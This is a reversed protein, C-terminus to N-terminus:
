VNASGIYEGFAKCWITVSAIDVPGVNAPIEYWSAGNGKKLKGLDIQNELNFDSEDQINYDITSIYVHGDPLPGSNFDEGLQIYAIGERVDIRIEVTGEAWHFADEGKPDEFFTNRKYMYGGILEDEVTVRSVADDIHGVIAVSINDGTKPFFLEIAIVGVLGIIMGLFLRHSFKNFDFM